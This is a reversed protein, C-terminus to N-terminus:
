GYGRILSAVAQMAIRTQPDADGTKVKDLATLAEVEDLCLLVQHAQTEFCGALCETQRPGLRFGGM